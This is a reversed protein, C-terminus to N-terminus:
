EQHGATIAQGDAPRLGGMGLGVLAALHGLSELGPASRGLADVPANGCRGDELALARQSVGSAPANGLADVAIHHLRCLREDHPIARWEQGLVGVGACLAGEASVFWQAGLHGLDLAPVKGQGHRRQHLGAISLTGALRRAHGAQVLRQAGHHAAWLM